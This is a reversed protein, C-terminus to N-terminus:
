KKKPKSKPKPKAKQPEEKAPPPTPPYKESHEYFFEYPEETELELKVRTSTKGMLFKPMSAERTWIGRAMYFYVKREVDMYAQADPYYLYTRKVKVVHVPKAPQASGNSSKSACGFASLLLIVVGMPIFFRKLVSVM